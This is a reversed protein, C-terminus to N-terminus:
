TLINNYEGTKIKRTLIKESEKTIKPNVQGDRMTDRYYLCFTAWLQKQTKAREEKIYNANYIKVHYSLWKKTAKKWDNV